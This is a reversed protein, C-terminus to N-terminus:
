LRSTSSVPPQILGCRSSKSLGFDIAGRDTKDLYSHSRSVDYRGPGIMEEDRRDSGRVMRDMNPSSVKDQIRVDHIRDMLINLLPINLPDIAKATGKTKYVFATQNHLLDYANLDREERIM